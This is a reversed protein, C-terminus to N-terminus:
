LDHFCYDCVSVCDECVHCKVCLRVRKCVCVCESVNGEEPMTVYNYLCANHSVQTATHTHPDLLFHAFHLPIFSRCLPISLILFFHSTDIRFLNFASWSRVGTLDDETVVRYQDPDHYMRLTDWSGRVGGQRCLVTYADPKFSLPHLM